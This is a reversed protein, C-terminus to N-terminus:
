QPPSDKVNREIQQQKQIIGAPEKKERQDKRSIQEQETNIIQETGVLNTVNNDYKLIKKPKQETPSNNNSRLRKQSKRQPTKIQPKTTLPITTQPITTQLIPTHPTTTIEVKKERWVM